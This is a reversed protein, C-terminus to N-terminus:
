VTIQQSTPPLVSDAVPAVARRVDGAAVRRIWYTTEPVERGEPPLPKKSVPDRVIPVNPIVFM